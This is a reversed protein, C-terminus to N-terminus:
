DKKFNYFLLYGIAMTLGFDPLSLLVAIGLHFLLGVVLLPKRSIKFWILVPFMLEFVMVLWATVLSLSSNFFWQPIFNPNAYYSLHWIAKFSSGDRWFPSILKGYANLFYFICFHMQLIILAANNVTQRISGQISGARLFISIFIFFNLLRDGSNIARNAVLLYNVSIIFVVIYLWVAGRNFISFAVVTCALVWYPYYFDHVLPLFLLKHPFISGSIVSIAHKYFMSLEPLIFLMKLLLLLYACRRFWTINKDFFVHNAIAEDLHALGKQVSKIV